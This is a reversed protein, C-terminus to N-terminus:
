RKFVRSLTATVEPLRLVYGAAFYAVGFAGAVILAHAILPLPLYPVLWQAIYLDAALGAAGGWLAATWVSMLYTGQPMGRGIRKRMNRRLLFFEVWAGISSAASIGVVGLALAGGNVRPIPLGIAAALAPFVWRLPFAFLLALAASVSVRTLAIRFPTRTDHLAYFGSSYLRGLTSVLLGVTAAALIYWVLLTTDATFVGRQYLAAIFIRGLLIFAVSTPVVFFTVQRLGRDLRRRLALKVEEDTGKEGAMQPLEAAAVSMGFVSVPLTYITQAYLLTSVAGTPLMSAIFTDIYASIQVVGRGGVVPGINRFITRVPELTRDLGFSLNRAHKLVFPIEIGFQLACGILTGWALANALEFGRMRMGFIVLTAIMAASWLVPAVYGIFFQRHTNLVGLAWAYLVLLGVGPFMIRTYKVAMEMVPPDLGPVTVALILPAALVGICVIVLVIVALFSVFVGAVRDAEKADGRSVLRSYVPIFSASLVGEGLLNQLFNPVKLAVNFADAAPSAGLYHAFVSTRILGAVRSLLIGAAVLAAYGGFRKPAAARKAAGAPEVPAEVEETTESNM